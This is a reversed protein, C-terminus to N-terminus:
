SGQSVPVDASTGRVLDQALAALERRGRCRGPPLPPHATVHVALDRATLVRRLSALFTDPGCFAAVTSPRADQTYTLTVPRVPAGADLAAQFTARRFVGADATCWTTAQPFVAVSRGSALIETLGAVVYPLGRPSTRDIFHTGARRALGGVVPWGGVERKALVAVPDVALLAPIDLWSIHNAVILTGPGTAPARLPGAGELRVGLAGLLARAHARLRAPDALRDGDALARRVAAAFAAGRLATASAPLPPRAHRACDRDCGPTVDWPGGTM